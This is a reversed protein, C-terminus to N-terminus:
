AAAEPLLKGPDGRDRVPGPDPFQRLAWANVGARVRVHLHLVYRGRNQRQECHEHQVYRLIERVRRLRGLMGIGDPKASRSLEALDPQRRRLRADQHYPGIQARAGPGEKSGLHLDLTPGPGDCWETKIGFLLPTM